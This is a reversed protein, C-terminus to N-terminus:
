VNGSFVCLCVPGAGAGGGSSGECLLDPGLPSSWSM